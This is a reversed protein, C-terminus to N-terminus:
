ARVRPAAPAMDAARDLLPQCRLRGGIERAEAIALGAAGTDGLRGLYGAYDLLGHALHYPTSQERLCSVADAFSAQDSRGSDASALRARVLDREARLMPVLHGPQCSDLLALLEGVATIDGLEHAARAALPWAWRLTEYSIGLTGAHGLTVRAHGLADHWRRHAAAAFAQTVTVQTRDQADESARLDAIGALIADAAAADGRLAALWARSSAVLEVDALGDAEAAETLVDDATDWEGLMLLGQALNLVAIALGIRAGVRRYHGAAARAAEAGAAPDMGTLAGSLNALAGGLCDNDGVQEALRAAERFYAFAQHRRGSASM